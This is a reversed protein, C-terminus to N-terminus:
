QFMPNAPKISRRPTAARERDIGFEKLRKAIANRAYFMRTKVTNRPIGLIEVIENISKGHYYVLDIMERHIPSLQRLCRALMASQQSKQLVAEPDDASDEIREAVGDELSETSRRRLMMLSVNRTIGLLWTSVQSRGEFAAARRWVQFFVESVIDDATAPDDVLRMAFRYVRVRHRHFIVRIARRDGQAVSQLLAEDSPQSLVDVNWASTSRLAATTEMIAGQVNLHAQVRLASLYGDVRCTGNGALFGPKDFPLLVYYKPKAPSLDFFPRHM